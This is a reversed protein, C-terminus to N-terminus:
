YLCVQDREAVPSWKSILLPLTIVQVFGAVECRVIEGWLSPNERLVRPRKVAQSFVVWGLAAIGKGTVVQM